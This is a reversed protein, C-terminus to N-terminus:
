DLWQNLQRILDWTWPGPCQWRWYDTTLWGDAPISRRLVPHEAFRNALAQHEPAAFLIADPPDSAIQELDLQVHGSDTLYNRWGAQEIIQHEFTDRGTGIGNSGLLLLRKADPQPTHRVPAPQALDPNRGILELLQREYSEVQGLTTPLPLIEVRYNLTRMRERLLLASYQGALVLDPQLSVVQELSGDHAPWGADIWHIPYRLHMPSLAAVRAPDAHHALAWDMCLDLSVIRQPSEPTAALAPLGVPLLIAALCLVWRRM